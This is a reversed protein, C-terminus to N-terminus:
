STSSVLQVGDSVVKLFFLSDMQDICVPVDFSKTSGEAGLIFNLHYHSGEKLMIGRTERRTASHLVVM